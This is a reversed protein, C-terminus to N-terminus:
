PLALRFVTDVIDAPLFYSGAALLRDISAALQVATDAAGLFDTHVALFMELAVPCPAM